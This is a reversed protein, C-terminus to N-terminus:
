NLNVAKATFTEEQPMSSVQIPDGAMAEAANAFAPAVLLGGATRRIFARRDV